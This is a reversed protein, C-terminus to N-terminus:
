RLDLRWTQGVLDHGFSHHPSSEVLTFGARQYIRRASTLIDNTWLVMERYGTRRAFELCQDVLRAGVGHGRAAPEVLLLRLRATGPPEAGDANDAGDAGDAAGDEEAEKPRDRVCFVAGVPEGDLEAIWCAEHRPDRHEAYDAVIRAVLTEYEENWGFEEAYLVANRQIVWGLDGPAPPRLRVEGGKPGAEEDLLRRVTRLAARLRPRESAPVRRLVAEISDSARADLLAAAHKGPETLTLQRRRADAPDPGRRILGDQEAGALLRSFYGPDLGLEKRLASAEATGRRRLEYLVRAQALPHRTNLHGEYDLAGVLRTFFRSFARLEDVDSSTRTTASGRTM